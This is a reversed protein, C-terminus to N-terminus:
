AKVTSCPSRRERDQGDHPLSTESYRLFSLRKRSIRVIMADMTIRIRAIATAAGGKM